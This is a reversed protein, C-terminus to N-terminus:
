TNINEWDDCHFHTFQFCVAGYIIYHIVPFIHKIKSVCEVFIDSLYKILEIDESILIGYWIRIQPTNPAHDATSIVILYTTLHVKPYGFTVHKYSTVRFNNSFFLVFLHFVLSFRKWFGKDRKSSNWAAGKYLNEANPM